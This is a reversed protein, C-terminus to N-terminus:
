DVGGGKGGKKPISFLFNLSLRMSRQSGASNGGRKGWVSSISRDDIRWLFQSFKEGIQV